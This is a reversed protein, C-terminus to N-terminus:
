HRVWVKIREDILHNKLHIFYIGPAWNGTEIQVKGVFDQPELTRHIKEQGNSNYIVCEAAHGFPLVGEINVLQDAPNPFASLPKAGALDEPVGTVTPGENIRFFPLGVPNLFDGFFVKDKVDAASMGMWDHLISAYVQRYDYQMAVNNRSLDPNDGYIGGAIGKGFIM